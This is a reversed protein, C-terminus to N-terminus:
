KAPLYIGDKTVGLYKDVWTPAIVPADPLDQGSNADLSVAQTRNGGTTGYIIGHYAGTIEPAIRSSDSSLQWITGNASRIDISVIRGNAIKEQCALTTSQDFVCDWGPGLDTKIKGKDTYLATGSAPDLLNLDAGGCTGTVAFDSIEPRLFDTVESGAVKEWMASGDAMSLGTVATYKVNNKLTIVNGSVVGKGVHGALFKDKKWRIQKTQLDVVWTAALSDVWGCFTAEGASIVITDDTMGVIKLQGTPASGIDVVSNWRQKGTSPEIAIIELSRQDRATRSAERVGSFATIVLDGSRVPAAPSWSGGPGANRDPSLQTKTIWKQKDGSPDIATATGAESACYVLGDGTSCAGLGTGKSLPSKKSIPAANFVRPPDFPKKAGVSAAPSSGPREPLETKSEGNGTSCGTALALSIALIAM